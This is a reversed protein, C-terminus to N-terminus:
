SHKIRLEKLWILNKEAQTSVGQMPSHILIHQMLHILIIIKVNNMHVLCDLIDLYLLLEELIVHLLLVLPQSSSSYRISSECTFNLFYSLLTMAKETM